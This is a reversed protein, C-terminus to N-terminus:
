NEVVAFTAAHRAGYRYERKPAPAEADVLGGFGKVLGIILRKQDAGALQYIIARSERRTIVLGVDRLEGLHQSLTPQRIELAREIEGVASEGKLLHLAIRLRSPNALVRLLAASSDIDIPDRTM